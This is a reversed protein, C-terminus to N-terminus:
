FPLQEEGAPAEMWQPEKVTTPQSPDSGVAEIKWVVFSNFITEENTKPSTWRNGNINYEVNVEQGIKFADLLSCKDKILELKYPTPYEPNSNDVGHFERKQFGSEFVQTDKIKEITVKM